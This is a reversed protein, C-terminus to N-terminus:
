VFVVQLKRMRSSKRSDQSDPSQNAIENELSEMKKLGCLFPYKDSSFNSRM